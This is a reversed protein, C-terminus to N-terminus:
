PREIGADAHAQRLELRWEPYDADRGFLIREITEVEPPLHENRLWYRVTRDGVGVADAFAKATWTRGPRDIRGGPRLHWALLRGFTWQARDDGENESSRPPM